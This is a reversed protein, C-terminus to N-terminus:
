KRQIDTDPQQGKIAYETAGTLFKMWAVQTIVEYKREDSM